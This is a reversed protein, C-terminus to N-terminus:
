DGKLKANNELMVKLSDLTANVVQIEAKLKAIDTSRVSNVSNEVELVKRKNFDVDEKMKPLNSKSVLTCCGGGGSNEKELKKIRKKLDEIVKPDISKLKRQLATYSKSMNTIYSELKAIREDKSGQGDAQFSQVGGTMSFVPFSFLLFTSIISMKMIFEKIVVM